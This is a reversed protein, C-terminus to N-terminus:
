YSIIEGTKPIICKATPFESLFKRCFGKPNRWFWHMPVIIPLPQNFAELEKIARKPSATFMGAIPVALMDIKKTAFGEFSVSDGLHGFSFSPSHVIIGINMEGSFLGHRGAIFELNYSEKDLVEGNKIIKVRNKWKVYAQAVQENCILISPEDNFELFEEIGRTHDFHRHTAYVVDAKIRGLAKKGPDILIKTTQFELLFCSQGFYIIEMPNM